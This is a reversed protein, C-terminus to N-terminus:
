EGTNATDAVWADGEALTVLRRWTLTTSGCGRVAPRNTAIRQRKIEGPGQHLPM